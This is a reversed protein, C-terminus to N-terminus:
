RLRAPGPFGERYHGDTISGYLDYGGPLVWEESFGSRLAGALEGAEELVGVEHAEQAYGLYYGEARPEDDM